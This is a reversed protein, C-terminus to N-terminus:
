KNREYLRRIDALTTDVPRRKDGLESAPLDDCACAQAPNGLFDDALPIVESAKCQVPLGTSIPEVGIGAERMLEIRAHAAGFAACYPGGRAKVRAIHERVQHTDRLGNRVTNASVVLSNLALVVACAWGLTALTGRGSLVAGVLCLYVCIWLQPIFRPWWMYPTVLSSVLLLMAMPFIVQVTLQGGRGAWSLAANRRARLALLAIALACFLTVGFIPGFGGVAADPLGGESFDFFAAAGGAFGRVFVSFTTGFFVVIAPLARVGGPLLAKNVGYADTGMVPYFPHGFDRWNTLYPFSGLVFVVCLLAGLLVFGLTLAAAFRRQFAMTLCLAASVAGFIAIANFKTDVALVLCAAACALTDMRRHRLAVILLGVFAMALAAVLGDVYHSRLQEIYIPSAAALLAMPAAGRRALGEGRLLAYWIAPVAIGPLWTIGKAAALSLGTSRVLATLLPAGVPYHQPWILITVQPPAYAAYPERFPNWGHVLAYITDYHYEQGDYSGDIFLSAATLALGLVVTTIVALFLRTPADDGGLYAGLGIAGALIAGAMTPLPSLGAVLALSTASMAMALTILLAQGARLGLM